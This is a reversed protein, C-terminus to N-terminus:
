RGPHAFIFRLLPGAQARPLRLVEQYLGITVDCSAPQDRRGQEPNLFALKANGVRRALRQLAADKQRNGEAQAPLRGPTTRASRIVDAMVELERSATSNLIELIVSTDAGMGNFYAYCLAGSRRQVAQAQAVILEIAAVAAADSAQPLYRRYIQQFRPMFQQRVDLISRGSLFAERLASMYEQFTAPEYQALAAFLPIGRVDTELRSLQELTVGSLGLQGQPVIATVFRARLMEEATPFWMRDNPSTLGREAFGPDIGRTSFYAIDRRTEVLVADDGAADDGGSPMVPRHFGFSTGALMLRRSGAAFAITCASACRTTSYTTLELREILQALKHGEGIRGGDSNLHIVRVNPNQRITRDITNAAGYTLMGSFELEAGDRLVRVNFTGLPDGGLALPGFETISPLLGRGLAAAAGLAGLISALRALRAWGTRRSRAIHNAAARWIGMLQWVAVVFLVLAYGVLAGFITAPEYGTSQLRASAVIAPSILLLSLLFGNLWYSRALSLEGRWHRMM